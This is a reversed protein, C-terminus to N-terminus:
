ADTTDEAPEPAFRIPLPCPLTDLSASYQGTPPRRM